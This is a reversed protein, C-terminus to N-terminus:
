GVLKDFVEASVAPSTKFAIGLEKCLAVSAKIAADMGPLEVVLLVDNEGLMAYGATLKGGNSALIKKATETRAASIAGLSGTAYKGLMVFTSM